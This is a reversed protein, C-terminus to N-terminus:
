VVPDAVVELREVLERARDAGIPEDESPPWWALGIHVEAAM